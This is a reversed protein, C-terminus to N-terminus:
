RETLMVIPISRTLSEEYGAYASSARVAAEWVQSPEPGTLERATVNRLTGDWRARGNPEDVFGVVAERLAAM